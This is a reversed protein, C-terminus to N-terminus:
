LPPPKYKLPPDGDKAVQITDDFEAFWPAPRKQVEVVSTNADPPM